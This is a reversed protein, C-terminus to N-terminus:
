ELKCFYAARPLPVLSTNLISLTTPAYSYSPPLSENQSAFKTRGFTPFKTGMERDIQQRHSELRHLLDVLKSRLDALDHLRGVGPDVSAKDRLQLRRRFSLHTWEDASGECQQRESHLELYKTLQHGRRKDILDSNSLIEDVLAARNRIRFDGRSTTHRIASESDVLIEKDMGGRAQEVGSRWFEENILFNLPRISNPKSTRLDKRSKM